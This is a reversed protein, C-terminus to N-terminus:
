INLSQLIIDRLAGEPFHWFPVSECKTRNNFGTIFSVKKVCNLEQNKYNIIFKATCSFKASLM